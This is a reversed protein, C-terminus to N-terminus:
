INVMNNRAPQNLAPIENSAHQQCAASTDNAVKSVQGNQSELTVYKLVISSNTTVVSKDEEMKNNERKMRDTYSEKCESSFISPSWPSYTSHTLSRGYVDDYNDYINDFLLDFSGGGMVVDNNSAM